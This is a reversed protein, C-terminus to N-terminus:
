AYVDPHFHCFSFFLVVEIVRSFAWHVFYSITAYNIKTWREVMEFNYAWTIKVCSSRM